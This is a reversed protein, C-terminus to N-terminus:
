VRQRRGPDDVTQHRHAAQYEKNIKPVPVLNVAEEAFLAFTGLAFFASTDLSEQDHSANLQEAAPGSPDHAQLRTL